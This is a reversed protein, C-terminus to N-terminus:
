GVGMVGGNRQRIMTLVVVNTARICILDPIRSMAECSQSRSGFKLVSSFMRKGVMDGLTVHAVFDGPNSKRM